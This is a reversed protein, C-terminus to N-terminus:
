GEPWCTFTNNLAPSEWCAPGLV